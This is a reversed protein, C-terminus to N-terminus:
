YEWYRALAQLNAGSTQPPVGCEPAIIAYGMDSCKKATSVIDEPTGQMLLDVAPIGGILNTKGRLQELIGEADFTTEVSLGDEGLSALGEIVDSTDGCSHVTSYCGISSIMKSVPDGLITSFNEPPLIESSAEAVIQVDDSVESLLKVNEVLLPTIAKVWAEAKDPEMMMGVLFDEVGVTQYAVTFPDVSGTVLFLDENEKRIIEAAERIVVCRGGSVFEDASIFDPVDPICGMGQYESGITAPQRDSDGKDIECGIRETEVTLCFPIKATVFGYQKSLQMSLKAMKAADYNAEPWAAGCSQMQEITGTQTFVAPPAIDRREGNLAACIDDRTVM